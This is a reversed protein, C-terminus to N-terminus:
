GFSSPGGIDGAWGQPTPADKTDRVITPHGRSQKEHQWGVVHFSPLSPWQGSADSMIHFAYDRLTSSLSRAYARLELEVM